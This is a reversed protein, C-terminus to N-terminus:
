RSALWANKLPVQTNGATTPCSASGQLRSIAAGSAGCPLSQRTAVEIRRSRLVSGGFRARLEDVLNMTTARVGIFKERLSDM